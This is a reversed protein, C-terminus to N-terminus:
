LGMRLLGTTSGDLMGHPRSARDGLGYAWGEVYRHDGGIDVIKLDRPVRAVLRSGASGEGAAKILEFSPHSAVLRMAEGGGLGSIGVIGIRISM